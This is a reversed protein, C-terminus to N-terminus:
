ENDEKHNFEIDTDGHHLKANVGKEIAQMVAYLTPYCFLEAVGQLVSPSITGLPPVIFSAVLLIISISLCVWFVTNRRMYSNYFESM